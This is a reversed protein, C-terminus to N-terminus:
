VPDSVSRGRRALARPLIPYIAPATPVPTRRRPCSRQNQHLLPTIANLPAIM